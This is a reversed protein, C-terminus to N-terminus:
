RNRRGLRRLLERRLRAEEEQRAASASWLGLSLFAVSVVAVGAMGGGLFVEGGLFLAVSLGLGILTSLAWVLQEGLLVTWQVYGVVLTGGRAPELVARLIPATSFSSNENYRASLRHGTVKLRLGRKWWALHRNPAM